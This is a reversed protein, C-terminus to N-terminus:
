SLAIAVFGLLLVVGYLRSSVTHLEDYRVRRPDSKPVANFSVGFSAQTQLMAPAIAQQAYTVLGLMVVVCAIRAVASRSRKAFWGVISSVIVIAGCWYGFRALTGLSAGVIEGFADLQSSLHSFAAPAFIFAFGTLSGVWVALALRGCLLAIRSTMTMREM